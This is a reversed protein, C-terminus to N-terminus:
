RGAQNVQLTLMQILQTILSTLQEKLQIILSSRQQQTMAQEATNAPSVTYTNSTLHQTNSSLEDPASITVLKGTDTSQETITPAPTQYEVAVFENDPALQPEEAPQQEVPVVDSPALVPRSSPSTTELISTEGVDSTSASTPANPEPELAPAPEESPASTESPTQPVDPTGSEEAPLPASAQSSLDILIADPTSIIDPNTLDVISQVGDEISSLFFKFFKSIGDLLSAAFFSKPQNAAALNSKQTLSLQQQPKSQLIARAETATITSIKINKASKPLQVLRQGKTLDQRKVLLTWKVPQGGAVVASTQKVLTNKVILAQDIKHQPIFFSAIAVLLLIVVLGQTLLFLFHPPSLHHASFM